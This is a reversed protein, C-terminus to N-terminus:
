ATIPEAFSVQTVTQEDHNRFLVIAKMNLEFDVSNDDLVATEFCHVEYLDLGKRSKLDEGVRDLLRRIANIKDM